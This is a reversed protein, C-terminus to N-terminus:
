ESKAILFCHINNHGILAPCYGCAFYFSKLLTEFSVAQSGQLLDLLDLRISPIVKRLATLL